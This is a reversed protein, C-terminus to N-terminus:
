APITALRLTIAAPVGDLLLPTSIDEPWAYPHRDPSRTHESLITPIGTSRQFKDLLRHWSLRGYGTEEHHMNVTRHAAIVLVRSKAEAIRTRLKESWCEGCILLAIETGPLLAARNGWREDVIDLSGDSAGVSVQRLRVREGRPGRYSVYFPLEGDLEPEEKAHALKPVDAADTGWVVGFSPACAAIREEVEAELRTLESAEALQFYGAPFVLLEVDRQTRQVADITSSLHELLVGTNERAESRFEKGGDIAAYVIKM